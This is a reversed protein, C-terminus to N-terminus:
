ERICPSYFRAGYHHIGLGSMERQRTYLKDTFMTGTSFRTEGYPYYRQEGVTVGSANTVVNIAAGLHDKLACYLTIRM